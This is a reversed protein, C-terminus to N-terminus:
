PKGGPSRDSTADLPHDPDPGAILACWDAFDLVALRRAKTGQTVENLIVVPLEGPDADRTAQAMASTLWTPLAVRTKIQYSVGGARCDPQGIGINPLRHTGLASAIEREQRKWRQANM